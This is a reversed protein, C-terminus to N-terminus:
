AMAPLSGSACFYSDKPEKEESFFMSAESPM